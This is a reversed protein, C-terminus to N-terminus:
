FTHLTFGGDDTTYSLGQMEAYRDLLQSLYRYIKPRLLQDLRWARDYHVITCSVKLRDWHVWRSRKILQPVPGADFLEWSTM